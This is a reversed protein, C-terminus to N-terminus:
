ATLWWVVPESGLGPPPHDALGALAEVLKGIHSATRAFRAQPCMVIGCHDQTSALRAFDPVNETVVVRGHDRAWSLVTPDDAGAVDLEKVAVADIGQDRLAVAAAPPYMEDLLYRV